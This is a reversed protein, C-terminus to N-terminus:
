DTLFAQRLVNMAHILVGQEEQNLGKLKGILNERTCLRAAELSLSGTPTLALMVYRRDTPSTRRNVLGRGVLTDIMKSMSPLGIGVHEAVESLSASPNNSLYILARLQPVTLDAARVTRMETRISRMVLPIVEVLEGACTELTVATDSEM